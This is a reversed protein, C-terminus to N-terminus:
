NESRLTWVVITCDQNTTQFNFRIHSGRLVKLTYDYGRTTITDPEYTWVGYDSRNYNGSNIFYNSSDAAWYAVGSSSSDALEFWADTVSCCDTAVPVPHLKLISLTFIEPNHEALRKNGTDTVFPSFGIQLWDTTYVGFNASSSITDSSSYTLPSHESGLVAQTALANRGGYERRTPAAM